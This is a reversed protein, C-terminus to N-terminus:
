RRKGETTRPFTREVLIVSSANLVSLAFTEADRFAEPEVHVSAQTSQLSRARVSFMDSNNSQSVTALYDGVRTNPSGTDDTLSEPTAASM